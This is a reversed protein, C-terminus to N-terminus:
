ICCKEFVELANDWYLRRITDESLGRYLLCDALKQYDQVGTFGVPLTEIGDLDGGLSIHRGTPDLELFHFIHDCVTDLTADTGLFSPYLNVGVVGGTKYIQTFMEDTLNRSVNWVARSNSHTAIVPAETIDM